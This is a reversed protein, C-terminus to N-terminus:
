GSDLCGVLNRVVAKHVGAANLGFGKKTPSRAVSAADIDSRVRVSLAVQFRDIEARSYKNSSGNREADDWAILQKIM